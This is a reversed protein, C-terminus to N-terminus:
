WDKEWLTHIRRGELDVRTVYASVFPILRETIGDHVQLVDHVGTSLLGTVTGLPLGGADEVALGTLDGWYYEDQGTEPLMERPAGIYYGNLTEARTRDAIEDFAAVLAKGQMRCTKLTYAHWEQEPSDANPAIWWQPIKKWTLPDDGFPHIKVWGQVGFPAVIRGLVIM